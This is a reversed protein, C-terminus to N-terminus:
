MLVWLVIQGMRASCTCRIELSQCERVLLCLGMSQGDILTLSTRARIGAVPSLVGLTSSQWKLQDKIGNHIQRYRYFQVPTGKHTCQGSHWLSLYIIVRSVHSHGKAFFRLLFAPHYLHMCHFYYKRYLTRPFEFLKLCCCLFIFIVKFIPFSQPHTDKNTNQFIKHWFLFSDFM